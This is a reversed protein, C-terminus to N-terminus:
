EKVYVGSFMRGALRSHVERSAVETLGCDLMIRRVSEPLMGHSPTVPERIFIRGGPKLLATLAKVTPGQLHPEVDHLTFHILVAAYSEAELDMDFVLGQKYVVNTYGRLKKKLVHMWLVSRDICYLWGGGKALIAALYRAMTGSGSGFDVVKEHGQLGMGYAYSKYFPSVITHSLTLTLFIELKGPESFM